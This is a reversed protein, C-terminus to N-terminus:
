LARHDRFMVARSADAATAPSTVTLAGAASAASMVLSWELSTGRFDTPAALRDLHDHQWYGVPAQTVQLFSFTIVEVAAGDDWTHDVQYLM